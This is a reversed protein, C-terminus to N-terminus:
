KKERNIKGKELHLHSGIEDACDAECRAAPPLWMEILLKIKMTTTDTTYFVKILIHIHACQPQLLVTDPLDFVQLRQLFKARKVQMLIGNRRDSSKLAEAM